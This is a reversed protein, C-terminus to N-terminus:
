KNNQRGVANPQSFFVTVNFILSDITWLLSKTIVHVTMVPGYSASLASAAFCQFVGIGPLLHFQRQM